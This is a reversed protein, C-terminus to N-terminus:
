GEKSDNAEAELDVCSCEWGHTISPIGTYNIIYYTHEVSVRWDTHVGLLTEM